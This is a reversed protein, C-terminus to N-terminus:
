GSVKLDKIKLQIKEFGNYDDIEPIYALDVVQGSTLMAQLEGMGFGIVDIGGIKFKLHKGSGVTKIDSIQVGKSFFVPRPNGFGFPEFKQLSKLLQTNFDAINVEADIELVREAEPLDLVTEELKKKFIEVHKTLISFGAAGPHGGVDVLIDAHKRIVEVINIGNISRASGKSVTEGVSIAIAPRYYEETIKGAILGIIGSPWDKHMLVHIKNEINVLLKAQEIAQTTMKQRATNTEGLLQALRKAKQPDKTCLLRLSDIAHELRGMANLRPGVIYGIEYSGIEGLRIGAENVLALLGLNTTRNLIKLGEVVFARGLGLLPLLDCITAIAVFQLLEQALAKSIINRILCWAVAAGCMKTSHVIEYADPKQDLPLHHDTIILDLGIEKAFKAQEIAVIGNDVTVVLSAGSDRAYELGLNSLGYGEKERHPIYPLVKAGMSALAKYLIVSACIGDVDYDGYIIIQENNKIAELIRKQSKEIGSIQLDKEFDSLRPNFFIERDKINRSILLQEILDDNKRPLIKWKM